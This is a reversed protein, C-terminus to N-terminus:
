QQKDDLKFSHKRSHSKSRNGEFRLISLDNISKSTEEKLKDKLLCIIDDKKKCLNSLDGIHEKAKNLKKMLFIM